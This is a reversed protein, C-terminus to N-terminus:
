GAVPTFLAAADAAMALLGDRTTDYRQMDNWLFVGRAEFGADPADAYDAAARAYAAEDAAAGAVTYTETIVAGTDPDSELYRSCVETLALLGDDGRSFVILDDWTAEATANMSDVWFRLGAPTDSLRFSECFSACVSVRSFHERGFAEAAEERVSSVCVVQGTGDLDFLQVGMTASAGLDFLLLEPVGDLDLDIFGVGALGEPWLASLVDYNGDLFGTYVAAWGGDAATGAEQAPAATEAAPEATPEAKQTPEAGQTPEAEAGSPPVTQEATEPEAAPQPAPTATAAPSPLGTDMGPETGAGRGSCGATLLALLLLAPLLWGLRKM